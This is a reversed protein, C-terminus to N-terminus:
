QMGTRRKVFRRVGDGKVGLVIFTISAALTLSTINIGFTLLHEAWKDGEEFGFVLKLGFWAPYISIHATAALGILERRGADDMAGLAAAIGILSALVLGSLPTGFEEFGIPPETFLAVCAGATVILVTTVLLALVGQWLFRWERLMAGLGVGLMHHHFPLFLLGAIILPLMDEVMGYALLVASLFVRGFLSITVRTFQWLEEYVDTTPRVIPYTEEKPPEDGFISEPHRVTFTFTDPNYIASVMLSELFLKAKPTATEVEVVDLETELHDSTYKRAQRISVHTAGAAFAIEAINKGQGSPAKITVLRM